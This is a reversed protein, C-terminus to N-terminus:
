TYRNDILKLLQLFNKQHIPIFMHVHKNQVESRGLRFHAKIIVSFNEQLQSIIKNSYYYQTTFRHGKCGFYEWTYVYISEFFGQLVIKSVLNEHLLEM